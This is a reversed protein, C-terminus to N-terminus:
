KKRMNMSAPGDHEKRQNNALSTNLAKDNSMELKIDSTDLVDSDM